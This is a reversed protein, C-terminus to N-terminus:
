MASEDFLYDTMDKYVDWQKEWVNGSYADSKTCKLFQFVQNANEAGSFICFGTSNLAVTPVHRKTLRFM